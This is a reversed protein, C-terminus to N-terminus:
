TFDPVESANTHSIFPTLGNAAALTLDARAFPPRQEEPMDQRCGAHACFDHSFWFHYTGKFILLLTSATKRCHYASKMTFQSLIGVTFRSSQAGQPILTAMSFFKLGVKM